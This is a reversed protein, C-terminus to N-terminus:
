RCQPIWWLPRRQRCERSTFRREKLVRCIASPAEKATWATNSVTRKTSGSPKLRTNWSVGSSTMRTLAFVLSFGSLAARAM